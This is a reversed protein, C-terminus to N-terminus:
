VANVHLRANSGAVNISLLPEQGDRAPGNWFAKGTREFDDTLSGEPIRNSHIRIATGAAAAIEVRAVAMGIHLTTNQKIECGFNLRYSTSDGNLRIQAANAHSVHEVQVPGTDATIKLRKMAQPNAYSFDVCPAGSQYHLELETLLLGGFDLRDSLDGAAISLSFPRSRGFSLKMQPLFQKPTRYAFAGIAVIEAENGSQSVTLPAVEKPDHYKGTAWANGIGPSILLKCVPANIKFRL